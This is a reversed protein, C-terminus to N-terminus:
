EIAVRLTQVIIARTDAPDIVDDIEYASAMRVAKGSDYMQAVLQEYREQRQQPDEIAELEKRHGLRVAGELGMGGFEGTPWAVSLVPAHMNGGGMAMAGLGYGKRTVVMILPTSLRAGAVFMAGFRRVTAERESEPGVMFGPTDCLSIVPLRHDECMALFRAAKDSAPADIAGGLHHPNNAIVGVPQGDIRALVTIIGAGFGRRLEIASGDDAITDIVPRIDYARLRDEPVMHRLTRQDTKQATPERRKARLLGLARKCEAVAQQEDDVLVDVVGNAVQVDMPGIDAPHHVGLGGGEVMAPGGMGLSSGKTAIVIDCAGVLAANGAFSYGAVVGIIPVKGAMASLLLFTDSILGPGAPKDTDGPRGGGGEAFIVIPLSLKAAVRFLRDMKRHNAYGQTGALVTYDYAFVAVPEGDIQATGLVIGDAPTKEILEEESRRRRQAAIALAGYEVFTGQDVLGAINERSTRRGRKHWSEVVEPRGEDLGKRRREIVEALDARITAPDVDDVAVDTAVAADDAVLRIVVDGENVQDGITAAISIVRGGQEARVAHQMKMAEIVYLEAGAGVIDGEQVLVDVLVGPLQAAPGFSDAPVDVSPAVDRRASRATGPEAPEARESEKDLEALEAASAVLQPLHGDIFATDLRGSSLEDLELIATLLNRNTAVGGIEFDSLARRLRRMAADFSDGTAIVKALLTDYRPSVVSGVRGYTDVRISAGLPPQFARLEGSGPVVTGDAHLTEANIRAQIAVGTETPTGLTLSELTAGYGIRISADVLDIGTVEETVTHEVQLRPNVELFFYEDDTQLFEVTALGAYKTSTVLALADAKMRELVRTDTWLAPAIEILKQRRRQASCDRTGVAVANGDRDAVVQVEVHRAARILREVYLDGNGFAGRAEAACRGYAADLEDVSTAPAMGRGGGGAAAKLMVAPHDGMGTLFRRAEDLSTPSSTAPVVPIGLEHARARAASKNGFLDLAEAPPGIFAIGADKLSRAFTANESLFGYGPHVADCGADVAIRTIAPIDLYAAPGTGPLAVVQSARSAHPSKEEDAPAIATTDIGMAAAADIIRIAIEGRNAVLLKHM